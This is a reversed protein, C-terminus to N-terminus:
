SKNRLTRGTTPEALTTDTQKTTVARRSWTAPVVEDTNPDPTKVASKSSKTGKKKTPRPHTLTQVPPTTQIPSSEVSEQKLPPHCHQQCHKISSIIWCCHTLRPVHCFNLCPTRVPSTPHPVFSCLTCQQDWCWCHGWCPFRCAHGERIVWGGFWLWQRWYDLQGQPHTSNWLSLHQIWFLDEQVHPLQPRWDVDRQVEPVIQCVQNWEQCWGTLLGRRPIVPTSGVPLM